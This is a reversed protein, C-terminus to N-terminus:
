PMSGQVVLLCGGLRDLLGRSALIHVCQTCMGPCGGGEVCVKVFTYVVGGGCCCGRPTHVCLMTTTTKLSVFLFLPHVCYGRGGM